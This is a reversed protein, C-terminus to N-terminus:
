RALTISSVEKAGAMILAKAAHRLTTGTTYIDDIILISKHELLDSQMVQFVQPLSMREQRSKKSQKETHIRTLIEVTQLGLLDALAQAQNFGRERLRERSLPIVTVLDVEMDKLGEKLFPVFVEALAYDGRYKYKAIIDKLYENYHFLSINKSLYGRWEKNREWRSCDPCLAGTIHVGGLERSCMTCTEGTIRNLRGECGACIARSEVQKLLGRWTLARKMVEDCVLCRNM